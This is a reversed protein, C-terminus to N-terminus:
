GTLFWACFFLSLVAFVFQLWAFVDLQTWLGAANSQPKSLKITLYFWVYASVLTLLLVFVHKVYLLAPANQPFLQFTQLWGTIGTVLGGGIFWPLYRRSMDAVANMRAPEALTRIYPLIVLPLLLAMGTWFVLGIAHLAVEITLLSMSVRRDALSINVRPVALVAIPEEV